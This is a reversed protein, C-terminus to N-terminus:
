KTEGLSGSKSVSNLIQIFRCNEAHDTKYCIRKLCWDCFYGVRCDNVNQELLDLAARTMILENLLRQRDCQEYDNKYRRILVEAFENPKM